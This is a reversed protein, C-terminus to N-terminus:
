TKNYSQWLKNGINIEAISFKYYIKHLHLTNYIYKSYNKHFIEHLYM